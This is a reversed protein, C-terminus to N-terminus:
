GGQKDVWERLSAMGIKRLIAWQTETLRITGQRSRQQAPLGEPDAVRMTLIAPFGWPVGSIRKQICWTSYAAQAWDIATNYERWYEKPLAVIAVLDAPYEIGKEKCHVRGYKYTLHWEGNEVFMHIANGRRHMVGHYWLVETKGHEQFGICHYEVNM